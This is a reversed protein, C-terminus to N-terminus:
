WAKNKIAGSDRIALLKFLDFKIKESLYHVSGDAFLLHAGGLHASQIPINNDYNTGGSSADAYQAGSCIKSGLPRTNIVTTTFVRRDPAANQPSRRDAGIMFGHPFMGRCDYNTRRGPHRGWDSTEGVCVVNSTGYSIDGIQVSSHAFLVGNWAHREEPPFSSPDTRNGSVDPIAGAIAVLTGAHMQMPGNWNSVLPPCPSSPCNYVPIVLGTVMRGNTPASGCFGDDAFDIREFPSKQEMYPMLRLGWGFGEYNPSTHHTTGQPFCEYTDHYNHMALGVQKFNAACKLVRAAERATQVAPLLLAILIGIIAIVVLLEILTFGQKTTM